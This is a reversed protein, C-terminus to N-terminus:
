HRRSLLVEKPTWIGQFYCVSIKGITFVPVVRDIQERTYTKLLDLQLEDAVKKLQVATGSLGFFFRDSWMQPVDFVIIKYGHREGTEWLQLLFPRLSEDNIPLNDFGINKVLRQLDRQEQVFQDKIKTQRSMRRHPPPSRFTM